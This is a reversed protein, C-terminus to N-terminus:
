ENRNGRFGYALMSNVHKIITETKIEKKFLRGWSNQGKLPILTEGIISMYLMEPSIDPNLRGEKQGQRIKDVFGALSGAPLRAAAYERLTGGVNVFERSWLSLFWPIELAYVIYRRQMEAIIWLPDASEGVAAWVNEILPLFHTDLTETVLNERSQFHYYIVAPTAGAAQSIEKLSVAAIGKQSFLEVASEMIKERLGAQGAKTKPPRGLPKSDKETM